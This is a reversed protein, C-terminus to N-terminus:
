RMLDAPKANLISEAINEVAVLASYVQLLQIGLKVGFQKRSRAGFSEPLASHGNQKANVGRACRESHDLCHM